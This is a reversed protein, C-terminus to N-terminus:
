GLSTWVVAGVLAVVAVGILVAKQYVMAATGIKTGCEPCETLTGGVDAGCESCKAM